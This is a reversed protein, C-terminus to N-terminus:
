NFAACINTSGKINEEEEFDVLHSNEEGIYKENQFYYPPMQNFIVSKIKM